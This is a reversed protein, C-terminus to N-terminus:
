GRFVLWRMMLFSSFSATLMAVLKALNNGVAPPMLHLALIWPAILGLVLDNVGINVLSQAVFLARQRMLARGRRRAQRRFTWRTNWVYSNLIAMAVAVSNYLVLRGVSRTPSLLYLGNFVGLDIAANGLGVTVFKLFQGLLRALARSLETARTPLFRGAGTNAGEM